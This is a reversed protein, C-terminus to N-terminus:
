NTRTENRDWVPGRAELVGAQIKEEDDVNVIELQRPGRRVEFLAPCENPLMDREFVGLGGAQEKTTSM